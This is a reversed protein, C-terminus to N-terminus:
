RLITVRGTVVGALMVDIFLSSGVNLGRPPYMNGHDRLRKENQGKKGILLVVQEM